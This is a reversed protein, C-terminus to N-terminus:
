TGPTVGTIQLAIGLLFSRPKLLPDVEGALVADSPTGQVPM